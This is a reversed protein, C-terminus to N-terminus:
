FAAAHLFYWVKRAIHYAGGASGMRERGAESMHQLRQSNGLLQLLKEVKRKDSGRPVLVADGLLKQYHRMRRGSAAASRGKCLILPIGLGAIQENGTGTMGLVLAAGDLCARFYGSIVAVPPAERNLLEACVPKKKDRQDLLRWETSDLLLRALLDLRLNPALTLVFQLNSKKSFRKVIELMRLINSYADERSSPVLVIRRHKKDLGLNVPSPKLLPDDMMPNGAYFANVGSKQLEQCTRADRCVVCSIYKKFLWLELWSYHRIYASIATAVHVIKKRGGYLSALLAPVIDGVTIILDADEAERAILRTQRRFNDLLGRRLDQLLNFPSAFGHSPLVNWDAITFYGHDKYALGEGVLPLAVVRAEAAAEEDAVQKLKELITVAISDEGRGNSILLISRKV